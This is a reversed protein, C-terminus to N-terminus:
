PSKATARTPPYSKHRGTRGLLADKMGAVVARIKPGRGHELLVIRGLEMILWRGDHLMWGPAFRWYRRYLLLRNRVNYYYRWANHIRFSIKFGLLNRTQKEGLEHELVVSDASLIRFGCRQLRLCFETDVYDIFLADEYFGTKTFVDAKILSGSNVAGIVFSWAAKKPSKPQAPAGTERWGGPVIMGVQDSRPCFRFAEFLDKFYDEPVATDQDFTAVWQFGDAIARRIGINLATAIGLNSANRILEVGAMRGASEVTSASAGESANDVVIVRALQRSLRQLNGPLTADPRYTVVVAAISPAAGPDQHQLENM